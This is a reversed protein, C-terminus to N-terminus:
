NKAHDKSQSLNLYNLVLYNIIKDNLIGLVRAHELNTIEINNNTLCEQFYIISSLPIQFVKTYKEVFQFSPIRKENEIQCIYSKSVNLKKALENQKLEHYIRILRLAKALM